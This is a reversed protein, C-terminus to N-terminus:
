RGTQSYWDDVRYKDLIAKLEGSKRMEYIRKNLIQAYYGSRPNAPSFAVYLFNSKMEGRETLSGASRLPMPEGRAAYHYQMVSKDEPVADILGAELKRINLTLADDSNIPQINRADKAHLRVYLDFDKSYAYGTAIGIRVKGLSSVGTYNWTSDKKVWFQMDAFGQLMDPFIFDPADDRAAGAIGAVTGTRALEVARAWSMTKYQVTINYPKLAQQAIEVMFGPKGSGSECTYPCWSDAAIIITEPPVKAAQAGASAAVSLLLWFVFRKM